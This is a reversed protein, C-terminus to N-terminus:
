AAAAQLRVVVGLARQIAAFVASLNSMSPNGSQSLMRHLSKAPKHIAEALAEFGLAAAGCLCQRAFGLVVCGSGCWGSMDM